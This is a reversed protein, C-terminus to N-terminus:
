KNLQHNYSAEHRVKGTPEYYYAATKEYSAKAGHPVFDEKPDGVYNSYRYFQLAKIDRNRGRAENRNIEREAYAAVDRWIKLHRGPKLYREAITCPRDGGLFNELVSSQTPRPLIWVDSSGDQFLVKAEIYANLRAPNPAFM